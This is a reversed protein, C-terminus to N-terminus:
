DRDRLLRWTVNGATSDLVVLTHAQGDGLVLAGTALLTDTTGTHSIVVSWSGPAGDFYRTVARFNLPAASALLTASGPQTRYADVGPGSPAFSALRLRAHGAAPVAGTDSVFVPLITVSGRVMTDIAFVSYNVGEITNFLALLSHTTDAPQIALDHEGPSLAVARSAEGFAVMSGRGGDVFVTLSPGARITHLTRLNSAQPLAPGSGNDCAGLAVVAALLRGTV